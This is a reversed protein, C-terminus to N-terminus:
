VRTFVIKHDKSLQDNYYYGAEDFLKIEEPNEIRNKILFSTMLGRANKAFFTVIRYKGGNYDLFVPTIIEANLKKPDISKFYENSALNVLVKEKQRKMEKNLSKTIRDGWFEYLTTGRNTKVHTGMELRYAQILDLPKLVAYLGSLIRLHEQAYAIDEVDYTGAKLGNYVEGKFAFLAQRANDTNFEPHWMQFREYNLEALSNSIHMLDKLASVDFQKLEKVLVESEDLYEPITYKGLELDSNFDLTKAPSIIILM